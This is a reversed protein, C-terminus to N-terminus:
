WRSEPGSRRCGPGPCSAGSGSEVFRVKLIDVVQDGPLIALSEIAARRHSIDSSELGELVIPFAREPDWRAVLRIGEARLMPESSALAKEIASSRATKDRVLLRLMSIRRGVPSSADDLAALLMESDLTIDHETAIQRAQPGIVDDSQALAPLVRTMVVQWGEVDRVGEVPRYRGQVRERLEPAPWQRLTEMAERRLVDPQTDDMAFAAVIEARAPEGSRM